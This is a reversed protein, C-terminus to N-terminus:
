VNNDCAPSGVNSVRLKFGLPGIPGKTRCTGMNKHFSSSDAQYIELCSKLIQPSFIFKKRFFQSSSAFHNFFSYLNGKSFYFMKCVSLAAENKTDM